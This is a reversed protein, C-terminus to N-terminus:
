NTDIAVIINAILIPMGHLELVRLSTLNLLFEELIEKLREKVGLNLSVLKPCRLEKEPLSKIDNGLISIRKCDDSSPIGPFHQLSQGARLLCNEENEGIYIEMYHIVDNFEFAV